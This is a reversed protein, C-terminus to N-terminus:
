MKGWVCICLLKSIRKLPYKPNHSFRPPRRNKNEIANKHGFKKIRILPYMLHEGGGKTCRHGSGMGYKRQSCKKCNLNIM